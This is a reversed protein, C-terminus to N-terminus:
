PREEPAKASRAAVLAVPLKREVARGYLGECRTPDRQQYGNREGRANDLTKQDCPSQQAASAVPLCVGLALVALLPPIERVPFRVTNM